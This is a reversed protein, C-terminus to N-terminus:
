ERLHLLACKRLWENLLATRARCVLRVRRPVVEPPIWTGSSWSASTVTGPYADTRDFFARLVKYDDESYGIQSKGFMGHIIYAM